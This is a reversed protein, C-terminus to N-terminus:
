EGRVKKQADAAYRIFKGMQEIHDVAGTPHATPIVPGYQNVAVAGCRACTPTPPTMGGWLDPIQVPGGCCSCTGIIKM